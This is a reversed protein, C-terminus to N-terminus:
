IDQIHLRTRSNCNTHVNTIFKLIASKIVYLITIAEADFILIYLMYIIYNYCTTVAEINSQEIVFHKDVHDSGIEHGFRFHDTSPKFNNMLIM